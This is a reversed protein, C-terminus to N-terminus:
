LVRGDNLLTATHSFRALHMSGTERWSITAGNFLECTKLDYSEYSYGGTVLVRGNLLTTATFWYREYEMPGAAGWIGAMPAEAFNSVVGPDAADSSLAIIACIELLSFFAVCARFSRNSPDNMSFDKFSM